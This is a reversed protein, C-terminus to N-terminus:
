GRGARKLAKHAKRPGDTRIQIGAVRVGSVAKYARAWAANINKGTGTAVGLVGDCCACSLSQGRMCVDQFWIDRHDSAQGEITTSNALSLLEKNQYPYPPVTVRETAAYGYNFSGKFNFIDEISDALSLLGYLSDFDLGIGTINGGLDCRVPGRYAGLEKSIDRFSDPQGELVTVTTQQCGLELGYDANMFHRDEIIEAFFAWERGSWWGEHFINMEPDLPVEVILRETNVSCGVVQHTLSLKDALPGFVGPSNGPLGFMKLLALDYPKRCNGRMGDFVVIDSALVAKKIDPLLVKELIGAYADRYLPDHVYVGCDVGVQLLRWAIPLSEGHNSIFLIM